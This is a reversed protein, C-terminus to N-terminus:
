ELSHQISSKTVDSIQLRDLFLFSKESMEFMTFKSTLIKILKNHTSKLVVYNLKFLTKIVLRAYAQLFLPKWLLGLSCQNIMFYQLKNSSLYLATSDAVLTPWETLGISM